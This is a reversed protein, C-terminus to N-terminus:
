TKPEAHRIALELRSSIGLKRYISAVQNAITRPSRGRRRAIECNSSGALLAQVLLRETRTLREFASGFTPVSMVIYHESGFALPTVLLDAPLPPEAGPVSGIRKEPKSGRTPRGRMTV